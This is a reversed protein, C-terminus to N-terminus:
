SAAGGNRGAPPATRAAGRMLAEAGGVAALVTREARARARGALTGPRPRPRFVAAARAWRRHRLPTYVRLRDAPLHRWVAAPAARVLHVAAERAADLEADASADPELLAPLQSWLDTVLVGELYTTLLAPSRRHRVEALCALEQTVYDRALAAREAPARGVRARRIQVPDDLVERRLTLDARLTVLLDDAHETPAFALGAAHWAARDVLRNWGARGRGVAPAASATLRRPAFMVHGGVVMEAGTERARAVAAACAHEPLTGDADAFMVYTGRSRAVGLDRAAGRSAGAADVRRLRPDTAAASLIAPTDDLSGRDVAVLELEALSQHLVSWVTEAVRDDEDKTVLVVSLLPTRAPGASRPGGVLDAQPEHVM